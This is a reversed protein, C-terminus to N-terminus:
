VGVSAVVAAAAATVVSPPVTQFLVVQSHRQSILPVRVNEHGSIIVNESLFGVIVASVTLFPFFVSPLIM